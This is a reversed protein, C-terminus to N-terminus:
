QQGGSEKKSNVTGTLPAKTTRATQHRLCDSQWDNETFLSLMKEM